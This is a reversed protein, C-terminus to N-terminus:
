AAQRQAISEPFRTLGMQLLEARETARLEAREGTETHLTSWRQWGEGKGSCVFYLSNDELQLRAGADIRYFALKTGRESFTGVLKTATGNGSPLWEFNEPEMFVARSYREPPYQLERGNVHEWVAEYADQNVIGGGPKERTFVGDKFTGQSKLQALGKQFQDESMYGNGSAGGFQLVLTLSKDSLAKQPGYRTGEPFYAVSGPRMRGDAAFDFDGELQFRVQDFNHRHRPSLFDGGLLGISLYFNNRTGERGSLVNYHRFVGGRAHGREEVKLKEFPIIKVRREEL